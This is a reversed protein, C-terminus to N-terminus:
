CIAPRRQKGRQSDAARLRDARRASRGRPRRRLRITRAWTEVDAAGLRDAADFCWVNCSRCLADAPRVFGHGVEQSIYCACRHRDPRDLYGRCEISGDGFVVGEELAAAVIVPKFVSGPPLAAATVRDLLPARPDARLTAWRDADRLDAPDFTPLSASALVAGTHVDMLVAAAGTPMPRGAPPTM